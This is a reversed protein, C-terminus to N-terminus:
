ENWLFEMDFKYGNESDVRVALEIWETSADCQLSGAHGALTLKALNKHLESGQPKIKESRRGHCSSVTYYLCLFTTLCNNLPATAWATLGCSGGGRGGRRGTNSGPDLWTPDTTSLAASPCIEEWYKPKGQWGNRGSIAGCGDDDTKWSLLHGRYHYVQNWELGMFWENWWNCRLWWWWYSGLSTYYALLHWCYYHVQNSELGTSLFAFTKCLNLCGNRSCYGLAIDSTNM